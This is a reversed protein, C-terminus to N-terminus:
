SSGHSADGGILRAVAAVAQRMRRWHSGRWFVRRCQGCRWFEDFGDLTGPLLQAKVESKAVAQLLDNCQLCRGSRGGGLDLAYRRAVDALQALPEKDRLYCGARLARHMLVARDRTLVIREEQDAVAVLQADDWDNEWLTDFGAFRLYRALRGLHADAAFCAVKGDAPPMLRRLAPLVAVRDNAALRRGMDVAQGNVLLLGVETHPVGLAEIVHKVSQHPAVAQEFSRGRRLPPLFDGLEAYFRFETM